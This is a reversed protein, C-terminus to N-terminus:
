LASKLASPLYAVCEIEVLSDKPLGAVAFCARAPPQTPFYKAYIGNVTAYDSMSKLLVTAKVVDSLKGGAANLISKINELSQQTQGEIGSKLDGTKPDIGVMGSLYLTNGVRIAQSYPGLAKPAKDTAIVSKGVSKDEESPVTWDLVLPVATPDQTAPRIYDKIVETHVPHTAYIKLAEPSTFTIDLAHTYGLNRKVYGEHIHDNQTGVKCYVILEPLKDKMQEVGQIMKEIEKKKSPDLKLLVLHRVHPMAGVTDIVL